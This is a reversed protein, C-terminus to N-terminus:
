QTTLSPPGVSGGRLTPSSQLLSILREDDPLFPAAAKSRILGESTEFIFRGREEVSIRTFQHMQRDPTNNTWQGPMKRAYSLAVDKDFFWDENAMHDLVYCQCHYDKGTDPFVISEPVGFQIGYPPMSLEIDYRMGEKGANKGTYRIVVKARKKLNRM